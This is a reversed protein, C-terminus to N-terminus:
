TGRAALRKRAASVGAALGRRAMQVRPVVWDYLLQLALNYVVDVEGIYETVGDAKCFAKKFQYLGDSDDLEFVGGLDYQDAGTKLGWLMIDHNMVQNPGLNRKVDTSGAYLYYLKGHYDITVSAALVDDEHHVLYVRLAEGFTERMGRFYSLERSTIENRRAMYRYIEHFRRLYAEDRGWSTNLGKKRGSRVRNRTRAEYKGLLAQEDLPEGQKDRLYVIMNYRPQILDDRTAGVNKVRWGQARLWRDLDTAFRVEPDFKLLFARHRAAVPRAEAVIRTVLDRDAWDVLPGRPAYLLSRGFPLRRVLITMAAVIEGDRELYVAQQGWEHKVKGWALDQTVARHPHARVFRGYREVAAADSLDLVPM